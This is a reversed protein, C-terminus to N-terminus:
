NLSVIQSSRFESIASTESKLCFLRAIFACCSSQNSNTDLRKYFSGLYRNRTNNIHTCTQVFVLRREDAYNWNIKNRKTYRCSFIKLVTCCYSFKAFTCNVVARALYVFPHFKTKILM